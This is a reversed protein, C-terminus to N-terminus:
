VNLYNMLADYHDKLEEFYESEQFSATIKYEFREFTSIVHKMDSINLKITVELKTSNQHSSIMSSLIQANNSEVIRSIETLSYDNKNMELVLIGGPDEISSFGALKTILSELTIAGQYQNKDNVVPILSLHLQAAIKIVEFIHDGEKVYPKYLSFNHKGIPEDPNSLDLIDNESLLGLFIGKEIVALHQVNFEQMWDIAKLGSDSNKLPPIMGSILQIATM